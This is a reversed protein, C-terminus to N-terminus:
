RAEGSLASGYLNRWVESSIEADYALPSPLTGHIGIRDWLWRQASVAPESPDERDGVFDRVELAEDGGVWALVVRVAGYAMVFGDPLMCYGWHAYVNVGDCGEGGERPKALHAPVYRLYADYPSDFDTLM